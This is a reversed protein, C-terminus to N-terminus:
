SEYRRRTKQLTYRCRPPPPLIGGPLLLLAAESRHSIDVHPLFRKTRFLYTCLDVFQNIYTVHRGVFEIHGCIHGGFWVIDYYSNLHIVSGYELWFDWM